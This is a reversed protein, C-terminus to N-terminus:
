GDERIMINDPKLDRHIVGRGHAYAVADLMADMYRIAESPRIRGQKFRRLLTEGCIKDMVFYYRGNVEGFDLLPVVGPHLLDRWVRVERRVRKIADPNESIERHLLKLALPQSEGEREVEYVTAMGGKGLERLIRYGNLSVALSPNLSAELTAAKSIAEDEALRAQRLARQHSNRRMWEGVGLAGALVMIGLLLMPHQQLFDRAAQSSSAATLRVEPQDPPPWATSSLLVHGRVDRTEKKYGPKEFSLTITGAPVTAEDLSIPSGSTGLFSESKGSNAMTVRTGPPWVRFTLQHPEAWAVGLLLLSLMWVKM